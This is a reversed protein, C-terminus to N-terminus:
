ASSTDERADLTREGLGLVEATKRPLARVHACGYHPRLGCTTVPSNTTGRVVLDGDGRIGSARYALRKELYEM